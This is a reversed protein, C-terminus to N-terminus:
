VVRLNREQHQRIDDRFQSCLRMMVTCNHQKNIVQDLAAFMDVLYKVEGSVDFDDYLINKLEQKFENNKKMLKSHELHSSELLEERDLLCKAYFTGSLKGFYVGKTFGIDFGSQMEEEETKQKGHRYGDKVIAAFDNSKEFGGLHDCNEDDTLTNM